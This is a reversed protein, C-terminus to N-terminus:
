SFVPLFKQLYDLLLELADEDTKCGYFGDIAYCLEPIDEEHASNKLLGGLRRWFGPFAEKFPEFFWDVLTYENVIRSPDASRQGKRAFSTDLSRRLLDLCDINHGEFFAAVAHFYDNEKPLQAVNKCFFHIGDDKSFDLEAYKTYNQTISYLLNDCLIKRIDNVYGADMAALREVATELSMGVPFNEQYIKELEEQSLM